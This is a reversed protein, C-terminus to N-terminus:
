STLVENTSTLLHYARPDDYDVRLNSLGGIVEQQMHHWEESRQTPVRESPGSSNLKPRKSPRHPEGGDHLRSTKLTRHEDLEMQESSPIDKSSSTTASESRESELNISSTTM